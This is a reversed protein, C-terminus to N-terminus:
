RSAAYAVVFVLAHLGVGTVVGRVFMAREAQGWARMLALQALPVYLIVGTILGPSYGGTVVSGLVHAVGNVLLITSIAIGMWGNSERRTTARTALVMVAFAVANIAIFASRRLPSGLMVAMWEPFGGFWEELIHLAYSLPLLWVLQPDRYHWRMDDKLGAGESM